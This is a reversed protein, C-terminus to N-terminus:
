KIIEDTFLNVLFSNGDIARFTATAASIDVHVVTAGIINPHDWWFLEHNSHM